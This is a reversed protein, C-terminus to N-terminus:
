TSPARRCRRRTAWTACRRCWGTAGGSSRGSTSRCGSWTRSARAAPAREPLRLGTAIQSVMVADRLAERDPEHAARHHLRHADRAGPADQRVLLDHDHEPVGGGPSHFTAGTSSSGTTRSTPSWTSRGATGPRRPRWCRPWAVSITWRTSGAAPTTPRTSAARGPHAAHHGGRDRRRGPRLRAALAARPRARRRRGPDADRLLVVAALPLDVEDGPELIARLTVALAAFGGNTM